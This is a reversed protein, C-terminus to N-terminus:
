QPLNNGAVAKRMVYHFVDQPHAKSAEKLLWGYGKRVLLKEDTLLKDAVAFVLDLQQGKRAPLVLSVAAGRRMWENSSRAWQLVAKTRVPYQVFYEGIVHICLDDGDSWDSVHADLWTAFRTLHQEAFDKRSVRAWRFALIKHEYVGTALLQDCVALRQDVSMSKIEPFYQSAVKHITPTRVGWFKDVKMNYRTRVLERFAPDAHRQLESTLTKILSRSNVTTRKEMACWIAVASSHSTSWDESLQVGHLLGNTENCQNHTVVVFRKREINPREPEGLLSAIWKEVRRSILEVIPMHRQVTHPSGSGM